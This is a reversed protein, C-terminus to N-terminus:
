GAVAAKRVLVIAPSIMDRAGGNTKTELSMNASWQGGVTQISFFPCSEM